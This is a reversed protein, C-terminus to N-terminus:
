NSASRRGRCALVLLGGGLLLASSPEPVLTWTGPGALTASASDLGATTCMGASAATCEGISGLDVYSRATIIEANRDGAAAFPASDTFAKVIWDSIDGQADTRIDIQILSSNTDDLTSRGDSFSFGLLSGSIDQLPQDPLLPSALSLRGTVRMSTTYTGAPPTTDSITDYFNGAYEYIATARASEGLGLLLIAVSLLSSSQPLSFRRPL